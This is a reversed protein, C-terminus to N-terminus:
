FILAEKFLFPRSLQNKTQIYKQSHIFKVMNGKECNCNIILVIPFLVLLKKYVRPNTKM